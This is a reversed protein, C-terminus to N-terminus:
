KNESIVEAETSLKDYVGLIFSWTLLAERTLRWTRIMYIQVINDGRNQLIGLKDAALGTIKINSAECMLMTRPLHYDQTVLVGQHDVEAFHKCTDNTDIGLKDIVIDKPDVGNAIAYNAMEEAQQNSRNNGSLFLKKVRGSKCLQIGAEVRERTVDSLSGDENVWAGFVIAYEKKPITDIESDILKKYKIKLWIQPIFLIVLFLFLGLALRKTQKM